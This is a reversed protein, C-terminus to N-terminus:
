CREARAAEPYPPWPQALKGLIKLDGEHEETQVITTVIDGHDMGKGEPCAKTLSYTMQVQTHAPAKPPPEFEWQRAASM